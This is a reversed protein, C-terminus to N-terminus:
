SSDDLKYVKFSENYFEDDNVTLIQDFSRTIANVIRTTKIKENERLDRM